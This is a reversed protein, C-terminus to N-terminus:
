NINLIALETAFGLAAGALTQLVTHKNLYLRAWAVLGLILFSACVWELPAFVILGRRAMWFIIGALGGLAGTHASIKWWHTILLSIASVLAAGLYFYQIWYPARLYRMFFVAATYCLIVAAFPLTREKRDTIATDSVKGLRMLTLIFLMPIVATIFVVGAAAWVKPSSPLLCMPTITLAIILAYSPVLMPSFIDSLLHAAISAPTTKSNNM